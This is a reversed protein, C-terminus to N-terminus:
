SGNPRNLNYHWEMWNAVDMGHEERISDVSEHAIVKGEGLLLVEDLIPEVENVEHTAMIVTQKELDVFKLISNIIAKRVMPDLGTFPEDLVIYPASRGLTVAIKLRSKNGKSLHKIKQDHNLKMFSIIELAKKQDFDIFQTEFYQVLEIVSFYPYYYEMDTLYALKESIRRDIQQNDVLINGSSPQLLGALLKLLTTKGSGNEGIVGIIKRPNFTISVSRLAPYIMYKKTVNNIKIM